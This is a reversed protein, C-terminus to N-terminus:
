DAKIEMRELQEIDGTLPKEGAQYGTEKLLYAIIGLYQEQTLSGPDSAPMTSSMVELLDAVSTGNWRTRLRSGSHEAVTHCAACTQEFQRAGQEAQALNFQGQPTIAGSPRPPEQATGAAAMVSCALAGITWILATAVRRFCRILAM